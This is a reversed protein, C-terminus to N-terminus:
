RTLPGRCSNITDSQCTSFYLQLFLLCATKNVRRATSNNNDYASTSYAWPGATLRRDPEAEQFPPILNMELERPSVAPLGDVM